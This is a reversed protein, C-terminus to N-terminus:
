NQSIKVLTGRRASRPKRQSQGTLAISRSPTATTAAVPFPSLHTLPVLPVHEVRVCEAHRAPPFGRVHEVGGLAVGLMRLLLKWGASRHIMILTKERPM